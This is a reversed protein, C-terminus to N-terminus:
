LDPAGLKRAIPRLGSCGRAFDLSGLFFWYETDSIVVPVDLGTLDKIRSRLAKAVGDLNAPPITVYGEPSNSFDIGANSYIQKEREVALECSAFRLAERARKVDEAMKELKVIGSRVLGGFPIALLLRDSNELILQVHRPDGGTKEALKVAERSPRVDELRVMLGLAKSLAKSAVVLVDGPKLGGAQEEAAGVIMAALDDGPKVEPLKLGHLEVKL